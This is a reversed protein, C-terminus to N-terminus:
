LVIAKALISRRDIAKMLFSYLLSQCRGNEYFDDTKFIFSGLLLLPAIQM